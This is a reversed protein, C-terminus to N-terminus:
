NRMKGKELFFFFIPFTFSFGLLLIEASSSVRNGLLSPPLRAYSLNFAGSVAECISVDLFALKRLLVKLWFPNLINVNIIEGGYSLNISDRQGFEHFRKKKRREIENEVSVVKCNVVRVVEM